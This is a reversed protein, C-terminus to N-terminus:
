ESIFMKGSVSNKGNRVIYTYIGKTLYYPLEIQESGNIQHNAISRNFVAKGMINYLTFDINEFNKGIYSLNFSTNLHVLNPLISANFSSSKSILKINGEDISKLFNLDSLENISLNKYTRFNLSIRNIPSGDKMLIIKSIPDFILNDDNIICNIFEPTNIILAEVPSNLELLFNYDKNAIFNVEPSFAFVEDNKSRIITSKLKKNRSLNGTKVVVFNENKLNQSLPKYTLYEALGLPYNELKYSHPIFRWLKPIDNLSKKGQLIGYLLEFDSNNIKGDNNIDAAIKVLPEFIKNIGLIHRLLVIADEIDIGNLNNLEISPLLKYDKDKAIDNIIFKSNLTSSKSNTMKFGITDKAISVLTDNRQIYLTTGSQTKITDYSILIKTTINEKIDFSNLDYMSMQINENLTSDDSILQGSLQLFSNSGNNFSDRKCNPIKANNNQVEIYTKCFSQNGNQDTVWLEVNNKGLDACTFVLSKLTTDNSFSLKLGKNGCKSFSGHDLDKAWVEVMGNEPLGDRNSDVPMLAIILGNLCYPTPGVKNLVTVSVKCSIQHGCGYEGYFYFTTTGVPYKGSADPGKTNSFPSNNTINSFQGCKSFGFASDLKVYASDCQTRSMITTDKPCVIKALSDKASVKIVQTYTWLGINSKSNPIYQCWDIVKWTRLVKMCGTSINFKMDQFSYMPQSCSKSKFSPYNYAKPLSSPDVNATCGDIEYNIPWVIDSENFPIGAGIITIVQTCTHINWHKDEYEWNRTIKGIGCSNLEYLVTKPILSQKKVYNEWLWAKGWKDLDTYSDKCTITISPPCEIYVSTPAANLILLTSQIFACFVVAKLGNFQFSM